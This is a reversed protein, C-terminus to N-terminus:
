ARGATARGAAASLKEVRLLRGSVAIEDGKLSVFRELRSLFNGLTAFDGTFALTFPMASFAGANVAGPALPQDATARCPGGGNVNITDFDVGSRKAAADLQVVLSRPTTTPPVAKGLRVVEAYNNKYADRAGEYTAILAQTQALQAQQRRRGAARARRGRRAQARAALKWYGGVAGVRSSPSSAPDPLHPERPRGERPAHDHRRHHRRGPTAPAPTPPPRRRRRRASPARRPRRPAHRRRRRGERLVHRARLRPAQRHRVARRQAARGRSASADANADIEEAGVQQAVVRTVGDIDHLRAM